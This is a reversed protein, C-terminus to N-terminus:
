KRLLERVRRRAAEYGQLFAPETKDDGDAQAWDVLVDHEDTTPQIAGAALYLASISVMSTPAQERLEQAYNQAIGKDKYMMDGNGDETEVVYYYPEQKQALDREARLATNEAEVTTLRELAALRRDRHDAALARAQNLTLQPM